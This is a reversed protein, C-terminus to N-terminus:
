ISAAAHSPQASIEKQFCLPRHDATRGTNLRENYGCQSVVLQKAAHACRNQVCSACHSVCHPPRPMYLSSFLFVHSSSCQLHCRGPSFSSSSLASISLSRSIQCSLRVDSCRLVIDVVSSHSSSFETQRLSGVVVHCCSPSSVCHTLM